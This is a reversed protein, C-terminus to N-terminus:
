FELLTSVWITTPTSVGHVAMHSPSFSVVKVGWVLAENWNSKKEEEESPM